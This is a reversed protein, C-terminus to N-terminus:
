VRLIPTYAALREVDDDLAVDGAQLWCHARFPWTRVGIVWDADLGLRRLYALLLYSRKLCEGGIPMWPRARAFAAVTELLPESARATGREAAPLRAGRLLQPFTRTRFVLATHIIAASAAAIEGRSLARGNWALDRTPKPPLPTSASHATTIALGAAKLAEADEDAAMLGGDGVLRIRDAAGVLCLYSDARVDLFVLDDDIAVANVDPGLWLTAGSAARTVVALGGVTVDVL